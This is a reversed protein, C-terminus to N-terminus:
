QEDVCRVVSDPGWNWKDGIARDIKAVAEEFAEAVCDQCMIDPAFIRIDVSIKDKVHFTKVNERAGM